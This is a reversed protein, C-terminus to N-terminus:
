ATQTRKANAKAPSLHGARELRDLLLHFYILGGYPKWKDVIRMVRGYDLPKRLHLWRALNNRAGIDDGPFVDIRGMGRLLIYEATWLGVGPTWSGTPRRRTIWIRSGSWIQKSPGQHDNSVILNRALSDVLTSASTM